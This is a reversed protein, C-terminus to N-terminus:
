RLLNIILNAEESIVDDSFILFLKGNTYNDFSLSCYYHPKTLVYDKSLKTTNSFVVDEVELKDIKLNEFEELDFSSYVIKYDNAILFDFDFKEKIINIKDILKNLDKSKKDKKMVISDEIMSLLLLDNYNIDLQKRVKKPIVIRGVDDVKVILNEM